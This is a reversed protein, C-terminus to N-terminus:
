AEVTLEAIIVETDVAMVVVVMHLRHHAPLWIKLLLLLRAASSRLTLTPSSASAPITSGGGNTPYLWWSRSTTRVAPPSACKSDRGPAQHSSFESHKRPPPHSPLLPVHRHLQHPLRSLVLSLHQHQHQHQHQVAAAVEQLEAPKALPVIAISLPARPVNGCARPHRRPLHLRHCPRHPLLSPLQPLLRQCTPAGVAMSRQQFQRRRPFSCEEPRQRQRSARRMEVAKRNTM